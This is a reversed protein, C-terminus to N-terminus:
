RDFIANYLKQMIGIEIKGPYEEQSGSKEFNGNVKRYYFPFYDFVEIWEEEDVIDWMEEDCTDAWRWVKMGNYVEELTNGAEFLADMGDRLDYVYYSEPTALLFFRPDLPAHGEPFYKLEEVYTVNDLIPVLGKLQPYRIHFFKVWSDEMHDPSTASWGYPHTLLLHLYKEEDPSLTRGSAKILNITDAFTSKLHTKVNVRCKYYPWVGKPIIEIPPLPSFSRLDKMASMVVESNDDHIKLLKYIKSVREDFGVTPQSTPQRLFYELFPLRDPNNRLLFLQFSTRLSHFM